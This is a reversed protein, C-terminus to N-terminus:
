RDSNGSVVFACGAFLLLAGYAIAILVLTM